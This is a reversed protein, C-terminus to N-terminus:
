PVMLVSVQDTRVAQTNSGGYPNSFQFRQLNDTPTTFNGTYIGLGKIMRLNTIKGFFCQDDTAAVGRKGLYFTGSISSVNSGFSDGGPNLAVGNCYCTVMGSIRVVAWHLWQQYYSSVALSGINTTSAGSVINIDIVSGLDSFAIGLDVTGSTEYWWPSTNLNKTGQAYSFWEVTFDGTGLGFDSDGQYTGYSNTRGYFYYSNSNAPNFPSSRDIKVAFRSIPDNFPTSPSNSVTGARTSLSCNGSSDILLRRPKGSLLLKTNVSYIELPDTPVTITSQNVDYVEDLVVRLNYLSGIFNNTTGLGNNNRWSAVISAPLTYSTPSYVPGTPTRHGNIWVTVNSATSKTMAVHYWEGVEWIQSPVAASPISFNANTILYNNLNVGNSVHLLALGGVFNPSGLIAQGDIHVIGESFETNNHKAWYEVTWSGGGFAPLGSVNLSSMLSADGPNLTTGASEGFVLSDGKSLVVDSNIMLNQVIGTM